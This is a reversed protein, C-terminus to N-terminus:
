RMSPDTSTPGRIGPIAWFTKKPPPFPSPARRGVRARIELKLNRTVAPDLRTKPSSNNPVGYLASRFPGFIPVCPCTENVFRVYAFRIM